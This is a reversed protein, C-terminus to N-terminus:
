EFMIECAMRQFAIGDRYANAKEKSYNIITCARVLAWSNAV